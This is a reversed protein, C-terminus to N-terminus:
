WNLRQEGAWDAEREGQGGWGEKWFYSRLEGRKRSLARLGRCPLCSFFNDRTSCSWGLSERVAQFM